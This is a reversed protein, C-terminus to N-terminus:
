GALRSKFYETLAKGRPTGLSCLSDLIHNVDKADLEAEFVLSDRQKLRSERLMDCIRQMEDYNGLMANAEIVDLDRRTLM